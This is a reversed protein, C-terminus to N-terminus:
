RRAQLEAVIKEVEAASVPGSHRSLLEGSAAFVFLNASRKQLGLRGCIKDEFDLGLPHDYKEKFKKRVMGRFPGPVNRVDAVGLLDAAGNLKPKLAEIWPAIQASGKEDAATLILPKPRPFAVLFAHGFQDELECRSGALNPSTEAAAWAAGAVLMAGAAM